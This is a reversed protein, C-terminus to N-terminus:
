RKSSGRSGAPAFRARASDGDRSVWSGTERCGATGSRREEPRHPGAEGRDSRRTVLPSHPPPSDCTMTSRDTGRDGRRTARAPRVPRVPMWGTSYGAAIEGGPAAKTEDRERVVKARGSRVRLLAPRVPPRPRARWRRGDPSAEGRTPGCPRTPIPPTWAGHCPGTPRPRSRQRVGARFHRRRQSRGLLHPTRSSGARDAAAAKPAPHSLRSRGGNEGM